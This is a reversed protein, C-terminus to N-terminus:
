LAGGPVPAVGQSALPVVPISENSPAVGRAVLIRRDIGRLLERILAMCAPSDLAASHHSGYDVGPEFKSTLDIDWVNDPLKQSSDLGSRGLRRKGFHKLGASTGLVSDLGTYLATIRYALNAMGEGPTNGIMEGSSFLDNDVDAAVLLMQNILSVLLPRNKRNWVDYMAQEVVYAGMSHAIISTKARCAKAGTVGQKSVLWDYLASLVNTLDDASRRADQRDPLYGGVSGDSPWTFLICEGLGAQNPNDIFLQDTISKYRSAAGDWDNNYGHVFVTVHRQDEQHADDLLPFAAAAAVLEAKFADPALEKWSSLKRIEVATTSLPCVYYRVVGEEDKGLKRNKGSGTPKRNSIM